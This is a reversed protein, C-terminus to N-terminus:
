KEKYISLSIGPHHFRYVRGSMLRSAKLPTRTRNGGRTSSPVLTGLNTPKEFKLLGKENIGLTNSLFIPDIAPTRFEGECYVLKEKFVLKILSQQKELTANEYVQRMNSLVNISKELLAMPDRGRGLNARDVDANMLAIDKRFKEQWKKYTDQDIADNIFKETLGDLKKQVEAISRTRASIVAESDGDKSRIIAKAKRAIFELHAPDFSITDLLDNFQDHMIEGRYNKETHHICRYYLYYKSKGKSYGATMHQGCWCKVLGRLPFLKKPQVKTPKINGLLHQANWFDIETVLPQHIGKKYQAPGFKDAPIYILGAYLCNSLIRTIASNGNNKFGESHLITKIVFLPTGQLYLAFARQVLLAKQDDPVLMAKKGIEAVVEKRYGYPSSQVYRGSAHAERVGDMTRKRIRLLEQNAMLYDMARQLFVNPDKTDIDIAEKCALVKLDFRNELEDIKTLAEVLNRSFRDHDMVILYRVKGKYKKIQAELARYNPRDFSMSSQGNDIYVGVLNLHYRECYYKINRDQYDLSEKSQDRNSLRIYGFADM